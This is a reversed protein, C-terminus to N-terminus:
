RKKLFDEQVEISSDKPFDKGYIVSYNIPKVLGLKILPVIEFDSTIGGIAKNNALLPKLEDSGSFM